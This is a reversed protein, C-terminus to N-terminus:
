KWRSDKQIIPGLM